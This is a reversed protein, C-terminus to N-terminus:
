NGQENAYRVVAQHYEVPEKTFVLGGQPVFGQQIMFNMRRIFESFYSGYVVDYQVIRKETSM